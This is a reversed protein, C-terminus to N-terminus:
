VHARGIKTIVKVLSHVVLSRLAAPTQYEQARLAAEIAEIEAKVREDAALAYPKSTMTAKSTVNYASRYADAKTAGKAVELAFKRMKPTLQRNVERGLVQSVPVTDLAQRLQARSLKPTKPTKDM